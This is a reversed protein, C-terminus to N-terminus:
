PIGLLFLFDRHLLDMLYAALPSLLVFPSCSSCFSSMPCDFFTHAIKSSKELKFFLAGPPQVVVLHTTLPRSTIFPIFTHLTKSNSSLPHFNEACWSTRRNSFSALFPFPLWTLAQFTPTSPILCCCPGYGTSFRPLSMLISPSHTYIPPPVM